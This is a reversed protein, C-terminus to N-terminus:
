FADVHILVKESQLRIHPICFLSIREIIFVIRFVFIISIIHKQKFFISGGDYAKIAIASVIWIPSTLIGLVIALGMDLLKKAIRQEMTWAKVNANLVSVDDLLYYKANMEVIDEIEPNFYIHTKKKYCYRIIESREVVPVDQIFM